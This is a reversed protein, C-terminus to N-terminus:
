STGCGFQKLAALYRRQKEPLLDSMTTHFRGRLRNIQFWFLACNQLESSSVSFKKTGCEIDMFRNNNEWSGGNLSRQLTYNADPDETWEIIVSL